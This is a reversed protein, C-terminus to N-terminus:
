KKLIFDVITEGFQRTRLLDFGDPLIIQERSNHEAVFIGGSRLIDSLDINRILNNIMKAAYPPDTFILSFNQVDGKNKIMSPFTLADMTYIKYSINDLNLSAANRSIEAATKRSKEVFACFVSGRSLAELGLAGTGACIDAVTIGELDILNVLINFITERASDSTPRVGEGVRSPLKRGKFEGGIIRM